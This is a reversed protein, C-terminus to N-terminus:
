KGLHQAVFVEAGVKSLLILSFSFWAFFGATGVAAVSNSGLKGVWFMDTLNYTMQVFSTGMIPLALKTLTAGIHGHTLNVKEGM